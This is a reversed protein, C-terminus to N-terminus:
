TNFWKYTELTEKDILGVPYNNHDFELREFPIVKSVVVTLYDGVFDTFSILKHLAKGTEKKSLEIQKPIGAGKWYM